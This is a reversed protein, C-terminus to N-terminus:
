SFTDADRIVRLCDEYRTVIWAQLAQSRHVPDGERLRGLQLYPNNRYSPVFPNFLIGTTM